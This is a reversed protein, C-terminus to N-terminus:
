ATARKYMSSSLNMSNQVAMQQTKVIPFFGCWRRQEEDNINNNLEFM